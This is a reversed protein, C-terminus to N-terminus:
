FLLKIKKPGMGPLRLMVLLGAPTKAKLQEYFELQGTNVLATIKECLTTGIGEMEALTGDAVIDALNVELQSIVRAATSYARARFPNEGQLELLTAIEALVAAVEVKDM